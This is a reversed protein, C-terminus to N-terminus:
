RSHLFGMGGERRLEVNDGLAARALTALDNERRPVAAEGGRHLVRLAQTGLRTEALLSTAYLSGGPAVQSRLVRLLQGPDEFLHVLGHCAVTAFAGPRFPLDFLDAQVLVLRGKDAGALRKAARALMGLSRDVLIVPRDTSRYCDATFVATGCGVDLMPGDSDAVAAAAF